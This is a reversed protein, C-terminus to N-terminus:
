DEKEDDEKEEIDPSEDIVVWSRDIKERLWLSERARSGYRRWLFKTIRMMIRPTNGYGVRNQMFCWLVLLHKRTTISPFADYVLILVTYGAAVFGGACTVALTHARSSIFYDKMVAKERRLMAVTCLRGKPDHIWSDLDYVYIQDEEHQAIIYNSDRTMIASHVAKKFVRKRIRSIREEYYRWVCISEGATLCLVEEDKEEVM